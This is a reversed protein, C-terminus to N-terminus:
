FRLTVGLQVGLPNGPTYHIDQVPHKEAEFGSGAGAPKDIVQSVNGFQAERYNSNTLNEVVLTVTARPTEWAVTADLVTYGAAILYCRAGLGSSADDDKTCPRARPGSPDIPDRPDDATLQSGPREGIHRVRLAARLGSPHQATLGGTVIRPPALAVANGNGSDAKFRSRALSVDLDAFLWPLLQWRGELDLGDRRTAASPTTGGADGSWVLESALDLRWLAAALELKGELLRSRAGVEYGVARPLAGAGGSEIVSRADNSHFGTGFNVYVDLQDLPSFVLSAKPSQISRQVTPPLPGPQGADITGDPRRSQVDFVFLDSRLGLVLRLWRNLRLEEQVWVAAGTQATDTAVCPNPNPAPPDGGGTGCGALRSRRQVKWLGSSIEDSRLQVGLGTEARIRTGFLEPRDSRQYRLNAFLSTRRDDQELEDGHLPDVAQFTFDNFLTLSYRLMSLSATLTSTADPHVTLALIAQQRQTAGGETPDVAGFRDLVGSDVLRAPIQGSGVWSSAYATVLLSLSARASLAHTAKAFVNYRELRESTLFPGGTGYLEAAFWPQLPAGEPAALGLVRWGSFLRPTGDSREGSLTPFLGSQVTLQSGEFRKRTVLNVAGATDFDGQDAFYPGKTFEIREIVEPILFHLDAYGQGHAHSPLNVPIGDLNVSVDTGHDADFGRLFLQDAKGGGQHQALVLGPVVRLVDEPTNRPRLLFDQDRM